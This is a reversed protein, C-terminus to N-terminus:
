TAPFPKPIAVADAKKAEQVPRAIQREKFGSGFFHDLAFILAISTGMYAAIPFQYL